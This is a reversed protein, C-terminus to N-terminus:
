ARWGQGNHARVPACRRGDALVRAGLHRLDLPPMGKLPAFRRASFKTDQRTSFGPGQHEGKPRADQEPESRPIESYDMPGLDATTSNETGTSYSTDFKISGQELDNTGTTMDSGSISLAMM